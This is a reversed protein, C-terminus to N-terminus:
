ISRRRMKSALCVQLMALPHKGLARGHTPANHPQTIGLTGLQLVTKIGVDRQGADFDNIVRGHSDIRPNPFLAGHSQRCSATHWGTAVSEVVHMINQVISDCHEMKQHTNKHANTRLACKRARM